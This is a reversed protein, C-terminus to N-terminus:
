LLLTVSISDDSLTVFYGRLTCRRFSIKSKFTIRVACLIVLKKMVRANRLIFAISFWVLEIVELQDAVEVAGLKKYIQNQLKYGQGSSGRGDVQVVIYDRTSALYASWDMKWRDTVLQSGPGGYRLFLFFVFINVEYYDCALSIVCM